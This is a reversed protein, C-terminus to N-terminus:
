VGPPTPNARCHTRSCTAAKQSNSGQMRLFAAAKQMDNRGVNKCGSVRRQRRCTMALWHACQRPLGRGRLFVQCASQQEPLNATSKTNAWLIAEREAESCPTRIAVDSREECHCASPPCTHAPALVCHCASVQRTGAHALVHHWPLNAAKGYKGLTNSKTIHQRLLFPNGRRKAGRLSMCFGAAQGCLVQASGTYQRFADKCGSVAARRRCTM